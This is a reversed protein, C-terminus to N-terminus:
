KDSKTKPPRGTKPRDKILELDQRKIVYYSGLKEAPLRKEEIFQHVRRVSVSLEKATESVTLLDKM